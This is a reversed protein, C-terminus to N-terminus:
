IGARRAIKLAAQFRECKGILEYRMSSTLFKEGALELLEAEDLENVMDSCFARVPGERGMIFREVVQIVVNDAFRKLAVKYYAKLIDHIDNVDQDGNSIHLKKMCDSIDVQLQGGSAFGMSQLRARVRGDRIANLTDAYYHNVTQLIGEREDNLIQSFETTAKTYAPPKTNYDHVAVTVKSIYDLAIERWPGSQQRFLNELVRPNVTEPLETGRSERYIRRIWDYINEEPVTAKRSFELNHAPQSFDPDEKGSPIRFVKAHGRTTITKSFAESLSRVHMRLEKQYMNALCSLFRQQDVATQRSPGLLDLDRETTSLSVEIDRLVNPFETRIHIHDYLLGGLFKRLSHIGVRDRALETWPPSRTFFEKEKRHRGGITTGEKIERTSRNKVAFWGHTLKEVQNKAIRIVGAEDGEEVADCTTITGVTRKGAPDAARAMSFVGQNALNNRTDMVALIITRKDTIYDHIRRRIITKDEETQYKTPDALTLPQCASSCLMMSHFLGPVDVVSLHHHGPGSLEIKLIDDSFRKDINEMDTTGPGTHGHGRIGLSSRTLSVGLSTVGLNIPALCKDFSKLRGPIITIRAGSEQLPARRLVIQTAFRTCLDSAVPFSLGTLGELLSSKGSSQDGVVVLQPLSVGESVGLERLKDIIELIRVRKENQLATAAALAM